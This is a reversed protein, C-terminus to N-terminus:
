FFTEDYFIICFIYCTSPFVSSGPIIPNIVLSFVCALTHKLSKSFSIIVKSHNTSFTKPSIPNVKSIYIKKVNYQNQWVDVHIRWPICTNGM